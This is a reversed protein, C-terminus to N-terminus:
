DRVACSTILKFSYSRVFTFKDCGYLHFVRGYITLDVGNNLDKWTWCNGADDKPIRARNIYVGSTLYYCNLIVTFVFTEQVSLYYLGPIIKQINFNLILVNNEFLRRQFKSM